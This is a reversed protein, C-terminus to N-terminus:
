DGVTLGSPASPPTTVAGAEVLLLVIDETFSPHDINKTGGSSVVTEQNTWNGTKPAYWKASYTGAPLDVNVTGSGTTQNKDLLFYTVYCKGTERRTRYVGPGSNVFETDTDMENIHVPLSDVFERCLMQDNMVDLVATNLPTNIDLWTAESSGVGGYTFMRWFTRRYSYRAEPNRIVADKWLSGETGGSVLENMCTPQTYGTSPLSGTQHLFGIDVNTSRWVGESLGIPLGYPDYQRIWPLYEANAHSAFASGSNPSHEMENGLEWYVNYYGSFRAVVTRVYNEKATEDGSAWVNFPQASGSTNYQFWYNKDRSWTDFINLQCYIGRQAMQEVLWEARRIWTLDWSLKDNELPYLSTKILLGNHKYQECTNLYSLFQADSTHESNTEAGKTPPGYNSGSIWKGGYWHHATGDDHVMYRPHDPDVKAHGHATSNTRTTCSFSGNGSDSQFSWSYDWTGTEDPMFRARWTDDGDHFGDVDFTRGNRSFTVSAFSQFKNGGVGSANFTLSFTGYLPTNGSGSATVAWSSGTGGLVALMVLLSVVIGRNKCYM